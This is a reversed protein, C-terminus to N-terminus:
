AFAERWALGDEVGARPRYQCGFAGSYGAADFARLLRPWDVAGGEPENRGPIGAIRVHGIAPAHRAFATLLDHEMAHMHFCNFLLRLNPRALTDLVGAAQELSNLFYGPLADEGIPEILVSLGSRLAHDCAYALNGAYAARSAVTAAVRGATVHVFPAGLIAAGSIAQDIDSRAKEEQDPIAARGSSAGMFTDIAVARLDSKDLLRRVVAAGVRQAEDRFEVLRFGAAAARRIRDEVSLGKWLFGLDASFRERM